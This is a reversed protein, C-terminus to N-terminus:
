SSKRIKKLEYLTRENEVLYYHRKHATAMVYKPCKIQLIKGERKSVELM